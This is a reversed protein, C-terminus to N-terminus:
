EYRPTESPFDRGPHPEIRLEPWGSPWSPKPFMSRADSPPYLGARRNALWDTKAERASTAAERTPFTGHCTIFTGADFYWGGEEPGGFRRKIRYENLYFASASTPYDDEAATSYSDEYSHQTHPHNGSCEGEDLSACICGIPLHCTPCDGRGDLHCSCRLGYDTDDYPLPARPAHHQQVSQSTM